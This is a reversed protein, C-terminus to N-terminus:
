QVAPQFLHCGSTTNEQTPEPGTREGQHMALSSRSDRLQPCLLFHPEDEQQRPVISPQNTGKSKGLYGSSARERGRLLCLVANLLLRTVVKSSVIAINM